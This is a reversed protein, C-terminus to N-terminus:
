TGTVRDIDEIFGGEIGFRSDSLRAAVDDLAAVFSTTLKLYSPHEQIHAGEEAGLINHLFQASCRAPLLRCCSSGLCALLFKELLLLQLTKHFCQQFLPAPHVFIHQFDAKTSRAPVALPLGHQWDISHAMFSCCCSSRLAALTQVKLFSFTSLEVCREDYPTIDFSRIPVAAM